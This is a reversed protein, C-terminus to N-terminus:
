NILNNFLYNNTELNKIILIYYKFVILKYVNLFYLYSNFNCKNNFLKYNLM